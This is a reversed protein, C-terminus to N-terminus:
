RYAVIGGDVNNKNQVSIPDLPPPNHRNQIRRDAQRISDHHEPAVLTLLSGSGWM